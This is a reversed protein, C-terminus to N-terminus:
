VREFEATYEVEAGADPDNMRARLVLKNRDLKCARVQDTGTWDQNWSVEIHHIVNDGDVTYSGAYAVMSTFLRAKDADGASRATPRRDGDVAIVCMRGNPLYHMYGSPNPGYLDCKVGTALDERVFSVVKWAGILAAGITM